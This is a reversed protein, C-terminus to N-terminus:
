NEHIKVVVKGTSKRNKLLELADEAQDLTFKHSIHPKIQGSKHWEFLQKLSETVVDPKFQLFGGWYFGHITVNKVLLHNAKLQPLNGSAFGILIIRAEPNCAKFASKFQDGGVADYVIDIGGLDKLQSVLDPDESDLVFDAGEKKIVEMKETGRAVGVVRAGMLKGLQIATLGVGGSAGLVLLTEGPKTQAKYGLALHSTGYAIQFAAADDFNMKQPLQVCRSVDFCGYEALGGQGGFVAVRDGVSFNTVNSGLVDVVGSVEMGLVFPLEPTEQYTGNKLLIDAFNLGCSMIKLRIQDPKPTPTQIDEITPTKEFDTVQFAKM